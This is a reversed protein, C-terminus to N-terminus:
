VAAGRRGGVRRTTPAVLGGRGELQPVVAEGLLRLSQDAFSPDLGDFHVWATITDVGATRLRELQEVCQDVSGFVVISEAILGEFTLGSVHHHIRERGAAAGGSPTGPRGGIGKILLGLRELMPEKGHRVADQETEGVVVQVLVGFKGLPRGPQGREWERDYLRLRHELLEPYAFSSNCNLGLRAARALSEDSIVGLWLPPRPQQTAAPVVFAGKGRWWTTKYDVPSDGLFDLVLGLSAEFMKEVESPQVGVAAQEHPFGGRGFGIDLRGETLADLVRIEEAVRLPHHYPLVTVMNGLRLRRTRQSAAAVMLNPSPTLSYSPDMHHEAFFWGDLGAGEALEARDLLQHILGSHDGPDSGPCLSFGWYEM